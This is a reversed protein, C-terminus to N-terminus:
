FNFISHALSYYLNKYTYLLFVAKLELTDTFQGDMKKGAPNPLGHFGPQGNLEVGILIPM